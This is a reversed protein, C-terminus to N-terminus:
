SRSRPPVPLLGKLALPLGAAVFVVNDAVEAVRQNVIGQADRFARGLPTEPVLGMGVENSVMVVTGTASRLCTLLQALADQWLTTCGTNRAGSGVDDNGRLRSGLKGRTSGELTTDGGERPHRNQPSQSLKIDEALMVNSLWLTLCDVLVFRDGAMVRTLVDSLDLVSEHTVWGAGRQERHAAIRARMEDDFAQATAIYHKEGVALSEAFRSKGSRAGGLVLVVSM